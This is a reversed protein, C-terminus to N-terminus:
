PEAPISMLDVQMKEILVPGIGHVRQQLDELSQYPGNQAREDLIRQALVPGVGELMQLEPLTAQNIDMRYSPIQHVRQYPQTQQHPKFLMIVVLAMVCLACTFVIGLLLVRWSLKAAPHQHPNHHFM